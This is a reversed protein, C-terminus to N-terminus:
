YRQIDKLDRVMGHDFGILYKYIIRIHKGDLWMRILIILSYAPSLRDFDFLKEFFESYLRKM